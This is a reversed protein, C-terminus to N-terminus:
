LILPHTAEKSVGTLTDGSILRHDMSNANQLRVYILKPTHTKVTKYVKTSCPWTVSLCLGHLQVFVDPSVSCIIIASCM